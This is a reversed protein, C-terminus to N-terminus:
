LMQIDYFEAANKCFMRDLDHDSYGKLFDYMLELFRPAEPGVDSLGDSDSMAADKWFNTSVMCRKPGFIEVTERVLDRMLAIRAETRLWGPIAYGVMSIKVYANRNNAMAKMGERWVALEEQNPTSNNNCETDAGLLTRPKGLHDIVVKINPYRACLKSAAVLQSPACQLDFTFNFKELLAFGREFAPVMGGDYGGDSGRLYDIGDHRTTAVHTANKGGDFKGVCDLIWRIGKVRRVESLKKLENEVTATDQALNCSAIIGKISTPSDDIMANVWNAEALGDDPLCEMHISGRFTVGANELPSIVDRRYDVALYSFDPVLKALFEHFTSGNSGTDLFHHHADLFEKPYPM